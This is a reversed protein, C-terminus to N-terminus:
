NETRGNLIKRSLEAARADDLASLVAAATRSNLFRVVDIVEEDSMHKLVAAADQARMSAFVRALQRASEERAAAAISDANVSDAEPQPPAISAASAAIIPQVPSPEVVEEEHSPEAAQEAEAVVSTDPNHAEAATNAAMHTVITTDPEPHAQTETSDHSTTSDTTAHAVAEPAPRTLVVFTTSAALSVLFAAIGILAVKM